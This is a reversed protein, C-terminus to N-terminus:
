ENTEGIKKTYIIKFNDELQDLTKQLITKRVAIDRKENILFRVPIRKTVVDKVAHYIIPSKAFKEKANQKYPFVWDAIWIEIPMIAYNEGL